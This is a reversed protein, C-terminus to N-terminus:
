ASPTTAFSGCGLEDFLEGVAFDKGPGKWPCKWCAQETELFVYYNLHSM